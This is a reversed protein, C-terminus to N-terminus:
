KVIRARTDITRIRTVFLEKYEEFKRVVAEALKYLTDRIKKVQKDSYQRKNPLLQRCKEIPLRKLEEM